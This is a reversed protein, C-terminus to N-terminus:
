YGQSLTQRRYASPTQGTMSKFVKSFYYYDEFGSQWAAESVTMDPEKLLQCAMRIQAQHWYQNATMGTVQRFLSGCYVANLGTVWALDEMTIKDKVHTEIYHKMQRVHSNEQAQFGDRCVADLIQYFLAKCHLASLPSASLWSRNFEQFLPRYFDLTMLSIPNQPLEPLGADCFFDFSQLRLPMGSITKAKRRVGKPILLIQNASVPMPKQDLTYLAQGELIFVLNYYDIVGDKVQWDPSCLRGIAYRLRIEIEQM